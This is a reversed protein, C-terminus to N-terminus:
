INGGRVNLENDHIVLKTGEQLEEEVRIFGNKKKYWLYGHAVLLRFANLGTVGLNM